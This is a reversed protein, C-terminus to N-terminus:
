PTTLASRTGGSAERFSRVQASFARISISGEPPDERRAAFGDRVGAVPAVM